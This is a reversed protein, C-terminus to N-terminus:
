LNLYTAVSEVQQNFPPHDQLDFGTIPNGVDGLFLDGIVQTGGTQRQPDQEM